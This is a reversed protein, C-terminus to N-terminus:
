DKNKCFIDRPFDGPRHGKDVGGPTHCKDMGCFSFPVTLLLPTPSLVRLAPYASLHKKNPFPKKLLKPGDKATEVSKILKLLQETASDHGARQSGMSQLM